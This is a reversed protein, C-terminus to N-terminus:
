HCDISKFFHLLTINGLQKNVFFPSICSYYMQMIYQFFTNNLIFNMAANHCFVVSHFTKEQVDPLKSIAGPLILLPLQTKAMRSKNKLVKNEAIDYYGGLCGLKESVTIKAGESCPNPDLGETYISFRELKDVYIHCALKCGMNHNRHYDSQHKCKGVKNKLDPTEYARSKVFFFLM